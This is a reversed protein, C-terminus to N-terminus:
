SHLMMDDDDSVQRQVRERSAAFQVEDRLGTPMMLLFCCQFLKSSPRSRTRINYDESASFPRIHRTTLQLCRTVLSSGFFMLYVCLFRAIRVDSGVMLMREDSRTLYPHLQTRSFILVSQRILGPLSLNDVQILSM